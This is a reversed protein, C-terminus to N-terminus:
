GGGGRGGGETSAGWCWAWEGDVELDLCGSELVWWGLFSEKAEWEEDEMQVGDTEKWVVGDTEKWVVDGKKAHGTGGFRMSLRAM